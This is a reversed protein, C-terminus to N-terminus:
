REDFDCACWYLLLLPFVADRCNIKFLAKLRGLSEFADAGSAALIQTATLLAADCVVNIGSRARLWCYDALSFEKRCCRDILALPEM